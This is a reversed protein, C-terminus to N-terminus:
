QDYENDKWTRLATFLAEPGELRKGAWREAAAIVATQDTRLFPNSELELALEGPVSRGSSAIQQQVQATRQVLSPNDPEVWRAFGLNDLTYEHACYIQTAPPLEAVRKLSHTMQRYTGSFVRGCGGLFLLDGCFLAGEGLYGLHGETHGPLELVQLSTGVITLTDGEGVRDTLEPIPENAPGYVRVEPFARRLAAIGAIHDSHKHTVLISELYLGQRHLAAIVPAADGPDVVAASGQAGQLLWIYNDSFAHIPSIKV